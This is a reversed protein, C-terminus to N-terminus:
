LDSRLKPSVGSRALLAEKLPGGELARIGEVVKDANMEAGALNTHTFDAACFYRRKIEEPTLKLYDTWIRDFLDIYPAKEAEAVQQAWLRYSAPEQAKPTEGPRPCRPVYSLVIPTMGKEKAERVYRRLYWGFTHVTEKKKTLLNDIEETEEGIGRITGRARSDDNIAGPDNHGFQILVFDGPQAEKLIAEWRGETLFTRSSRGGIARNVVRIKAPDFRKELPSGWGWQDNSGTGNGNRVTSDGIIWLTPLSAYAVLALM